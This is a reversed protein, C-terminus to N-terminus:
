STHLGRRAITFGHGTLTSWCEMGDQRSTCAFHGAAASQGYALAGANGPPSVSCDPRAAGGRGVTATVREASCGEPTAFRHEGITCTAADDGIACSINGTPSSFTSAQRAGSPAPRVPKLWDGAHSLTAVVAPPTHAGNVLADNVALAYAPDCAQQLRTLTQVVVDGSAPDAWGKGSSAATGYRDFAQADAAPDECSTTDPLATLASKAEAANATASPSPASSAEATGAPTPTSAPEGHGRQFIAWTIVALVVVLAALVLLWPPRRRPRAEAPSAPAGTAQGNSPVPDAARTPAAGPATAAAGSAEARAAPTAPPIVPPMAAKPMAPLQETPEDVRAPEGPAAAPRAADAAPEATAQVGAAAEADGSAQAAVRAARTALAADVDPSGLRGLWELLAPYTSPNHALAPRLEPHDRALEQLTTLPTAPDAALRELEARDEM